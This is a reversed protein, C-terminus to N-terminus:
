DRSEDPSEAISEATDATDGTDDPYYPSGYKAEGVCAFSGGIALGIVAARSSRGLSPSRSGCHPCFPDAKRQFRGCSSCPRLSSPSM